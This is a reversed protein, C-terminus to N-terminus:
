RSENIIVNNLMKATTNVEFKEISNEKVNKITFFIKGDLDKPLMFKKNFARERYSERFLISQAEERIEIVFKDQNNNEYKVGLLLMENEIGLFSVSAAHNLSDKVQTQGRSVNVALFAVITFFFKGTFIKANSYRFKSQM